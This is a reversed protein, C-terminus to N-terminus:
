PGWGLSTTSRRVRSPATPTRPFWSEAAVPSISASQNLSSARTATSHVARTRVGADRAARSARGSRRESPAKVSTWPLGRSGMQSYM